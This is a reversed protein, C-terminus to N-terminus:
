SYLHCYINKLSKHDVQISKFETRNIPTNALIEFNAKARKENQISYSTRSKIQDNEDFNNLLERAASQIGVEANQIDQETVVDKDLNALAFGLNKNFQKFKALVNLGMNYSLDILVSKVHSPALEWYKFQDDESFQYSASKLKKLIQTFVRDTAELASAQSIGEAESDNSRSEASVNYTQYFDQRWNPYKSSVWKKLAATSKNKHKRWEKRLEKFHEKVEEKSLSKLSEQPNDSVNTGYGVSWQKVDPYPFAEYGEHGLISGVVEDEDIDSEYEISFEEMMQDEIEQKDAPSMDEPAEEVIQEIQAQVDVNPNNSYNKDLDFAKAFMSVSIALGAATMGIRKLALSLKGPPNISNLQSKTLIVPPENIVRKSPDDDPNYTPNYATHFPQEERSERIFFIQPNERYFNLIFDKEKKM